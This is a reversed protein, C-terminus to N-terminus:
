CSCAHQQSNLAFQYMDQDVQPQQGAANLMARLENALVDRIVGRVYETILLGLAPPEQQQGKTQPDDNSM